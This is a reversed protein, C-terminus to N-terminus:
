CHNLLRTLSTLCTICPLCDMPNLNELWKEIETVKLNRDFCDTAQITAKKKKPWAQITAKVQKLPSSKDRKLIRCSRGLKKKELKEVGFIVNENKM